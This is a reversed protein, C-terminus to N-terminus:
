VRIDVNGGVAPNVSNEMAGADMMEVMGEGITDMLDLSKALMKAGFDYEVKSASMAMSLGPIDM